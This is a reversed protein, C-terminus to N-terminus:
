SEKHKVRRARAGWQWVYDAGSALTSLAVGLGLAQLLAPPLPWWGLSFVLLVVLLIQMFTNFKSIRTPAMVVPGFWFHYVFVGLVIVLDRGMVLVFLWWPLHGQYALLCYTTVMLLKDALPDAVAGFRSTWGYRRALLGDLADSGAAVVFVLFAHRYDATLLLWAMPVVLGLRLVTIANPLLRLNM